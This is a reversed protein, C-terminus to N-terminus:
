ELVAIGEIEILANDDFLNRVEVLTVAPYHKGFLSRYVEGLPKLLDIYANKDTVFITLKVLNQPTGGAERVVADLNALAQAFQDVLEGPAAVRGAADVGPQGALFLMRSGQAVIGHSFGRPKPLSAPNVITISM